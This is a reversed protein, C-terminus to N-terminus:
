NAMRELLKPLGKKAIERAARDVVMEIIEDKRSYVLERVAEAIQEGVGSYKHSLQDTLIHNLIAEIQASIAKEDVEIQYLAMM